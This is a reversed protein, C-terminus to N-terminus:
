RRGSRAPARIRDPQSSHASRSGSFAPDGIPSSAEGSREGGGSRDHRDVGARPSADEHKPTIVNAQLASLAGRMVREFSVACEPLHLAAPISRVVEESAGADVLAGLLMDGSAGGVCDIYALRMQNRVIMHACVAAGFGNDINVVSVGPACSNLMALLAAIGNFSVGYGVSTPVAITPCSVLGGVVTALAGEMGAIAIVASAKWLLERKSLLRHVGAVGVDYVREVRTGLWELTLAAEEAVFLDSTGATVVAVFRDSQPVPFDGVAILHAAEFYLAEPFKEQVVSVAELSARTVLARGDRALMREVIMAIQAPTKHLGYVVEPVGTRFSRHHDLLAVDVDEYPLDRLDDLATEISRSGAAVEELISRLRDDSM